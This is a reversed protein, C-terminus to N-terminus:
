IGYQLFAWKGFHCIAVWKLASDKKFLVRKAVATQCRPSFIIGFLRIEFRRLSNSLNSFFHGLHWVVFVRYWRRVM